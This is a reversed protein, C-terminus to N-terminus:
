AKIDLLYSLTDDAMKLAKLNAKYDYTAIKSDVLEQAVDVNPANVIGQEDADPNDPQYLQTTANAKARVDVNVGGGKQATSVAQQPIFPQTTRSGGIISGTSNANAINNASIELRRSAANLGSLSTNIASIM